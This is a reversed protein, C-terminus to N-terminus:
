VCAESVRCLWRAVHVVLCTLFSLATLGLHCDAERGLPSEPVPLTFGCAAVRMAVAFDVLYCTLVTMLSGNRMGHIQVKVFFWVSRYRLAPSMCCNLWGAAYIGHFMSHLSGGFRSYLRGCSSYLSGLLVDLGGGFSVPTEKAM